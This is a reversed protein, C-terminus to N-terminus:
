KLIHMNAQGHHCSLLDALLPNHIHCLSQHLSTTMLHSATIITHHSTLLTLLFPLLRTIPHRACALLLAGPDELLARGIALDGDVEAFSVEDVVDCM